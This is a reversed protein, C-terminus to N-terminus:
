LVHEQHTREVKYRLGYTECEYWYRCFVDNQASVPKDDAYFIDKDVTPDFDPCNKCFTDACKVPMMIYQSM